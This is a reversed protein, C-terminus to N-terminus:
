PQEAQEEGAEEGGGPDDTSNEGDGHQPQSSRESTSTSRGRGGGKPKNDADIRTTYGSSSGTISHTVTKVLYTGDVGERVGAITVQGAARISPDGVTEFSADKESRRLERLRAEAAVQARDRNPYINRLYFTAGSSDEDNSQEVERRQSAHRDGYGAKVKGHKQRGKHNVRWSILDSKRLVINPTSGGSVTVGDGAPVFVLRGNAIKACAGVEREMRRVFHIDSEDTQHLMPYRIRAFSSHIAPTWGNRGAVEQMVEALTKNEYHHTQQGKANSRTVDAATGSVKIRYPAGSLEVDDITFEGMNKLQGRYGMEVVTKEGGKPVALIGDRDDLTVTFTDNQRGAHDVVKLELVFGRMRPTVDRGGITIRYDPYM